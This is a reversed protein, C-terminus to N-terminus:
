KDQTWEEKSDIWEREQETTILTRRGFKKAKLAGRELEDYIFGISVNYDAALEKVTKAGLKVAKKKM